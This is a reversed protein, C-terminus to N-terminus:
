TDKPQNGNLNAGGNQMHDRITSMLMNVDNSNTCNSKGNKSSARLMLQHNENFPQNQAAQDAIGSLKPSEIPKSSTPTDIILQTEARSPSM